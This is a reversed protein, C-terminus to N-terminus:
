NKQTPNEARPRKTPSCKSWFWWFSGSFPLLLTKQCIYCWYWQMALLLVWIITEKAFFTFHNNRSDSLFLYKLFCNQLVTFGNDDLLFSDEWFNRQNPSYLWKQLHYVNEVFKERFCNFVLFNLLETFSIRRRSVDVMRKKLGIIWHLFCRM